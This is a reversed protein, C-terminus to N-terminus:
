VGWSFVLILLACVGTFFGFSLFLCFVFFVGFVIDAILEVTETKM